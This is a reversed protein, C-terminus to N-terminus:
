IIRRYLGHRNCYAYLIGHGKKRFRVFIEQEPYLKVIEVTGSTVYAIFSMYHEKSMPHQMTISYENDITEVTVLHHEDVAEAEQKLLTVGCCSFNGEGIATLINGCVPCIYFQVKKMNGSVNENTKLDGTLLETVSVGLAKSLDEIISIDPLGRNTEWKSVAKDSVNISEALEKQTLGRKERLKKITNGTVYSM